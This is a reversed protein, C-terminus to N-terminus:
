ECSAGDDLVDFDPLNLNRVAVIYASYGRMLGKLGEERMTLGLCHVLRTYRLPLMGPVIRSQCELRRQATLLPYALTHFCLMQLLYTLVNVNSQYNFGALALTFNRPLHCFLGRYLDQVSITALTFASKYTQFGPLRNQLVYRSEALHFPHVLLDALIAASLDRVFSIEKYINTENDFYYSM